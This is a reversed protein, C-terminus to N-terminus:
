TNGAPPTDGEASEGEPRVPQAEADGANEPAAPKEEEYEMGRAHLVDEVTITM